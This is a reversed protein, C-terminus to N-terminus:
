PRYKDLQLMAIETRPVHHFAVETNGILVDSGPAAHPDQFPHQIVQTEVGGETRAAEGVGATIAARTWLLADGLEHERDPTAGIAELRTSTM